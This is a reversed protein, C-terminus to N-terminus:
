ILDLLNEPLATLFESWDTGWAPGRRRLALVIVARDTADTEATVHADVWTRLDKVTTMTQTM